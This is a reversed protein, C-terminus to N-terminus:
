GLEKLSELSREQALRSDKRWDLVLESELRKVRPLASCYGLVLGLVLGLFMAAVLDM